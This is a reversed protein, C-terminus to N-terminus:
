EQFEPYNARERKRKMELGKELAQRREEETLQKKLLRGENKRVYAEEVSHAAEEETLKMGELYSRKREEHVARRRELEELRDREQQEEEEDKRESFFPFGPDDAAGFYFRCNRSHWPGEAQVEAAAERARERKAESWFYWAVGEVEGNTRVYDALAGEPCFQAEEQPLRERHRKAYNRFVERYRANDKGSIELEVAWRQGGLGTLIGDPMRGLNGNRSIRGGGGRVASVAESRIQRETIWDPLGELKLALDVVALDHELSKLDVKAPPVGVDALEAGKKTALYVGPKGHLVYEHRLLGADVLKKLRRYVMSMSVDLERRGQTFNCFAALGFQEATIFGHRTVFELGKLDRKTLRVGGRKNGSM